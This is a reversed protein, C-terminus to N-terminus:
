GNKIAEKKAIDVALNVTEYLDDLDGDYVVFRMWSLFNHMVKERLNGVIRYETVTNEM